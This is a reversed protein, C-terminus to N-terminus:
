ATSRCTATLPTFRPWTGNLPTVPLNWAAVVEEMVFLVATIPTNFAAGIGAAAGIPAILRMNERTLRFVRGLLSAIGAGMQLAPDEPGMPNGSGISITSAVFKGTVGNFPVYGDSAYLAAKTFNIGSGRASPFVHVTLLYAVGGGVAPWLLVVLWDRHGSGHVTNWNFFEITMHFCVVVLGSFIGIIISLVLFRQAEGLVPGRRGLEQFRRQLEELIKM